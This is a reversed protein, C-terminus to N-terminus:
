KVRHVATHYRWSVFFLVGVLILPGSIVAIWDIRGHVRVAYIVALTVFGIAGIWEFQWAMAVVGLVLFSPILHIAFAPLAELFPRGNFADLAFLSLFVAILMGSIRPGWLILRELTNTM